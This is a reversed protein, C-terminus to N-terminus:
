RLPRLYTPMLLLLTHEAFYIRQLAFARVKIRPLMHSHITLHTDLWNINQKKVERILYKGPM